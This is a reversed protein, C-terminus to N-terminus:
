RRGGALVSVLGAVGLGILIAPYLSGNPVHYGAARVLGLVGFVIFALGFGLANGDRRAPLFRSLTKMIM